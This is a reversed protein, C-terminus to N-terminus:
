RRRSRARPHVGSWHGAPCRHGSGATRGSGIAHCQEPITPRSSTNASPAPREKARIASPTGKVHLISAATAGCHAWPKARNECQRCGRMTWLMECRSFQQMAAFVNGWAGDTAPLLDSNCRPGGDRVQGESGVSRGGAGSVKAAIELTSGIPDAKRGIEALDVHDIGTCRISRIIWRIDDDKIHYFVSRGHAAFLHERVELGAERITNAGIGVAVHPTAPAPTAYIGIPHAHM